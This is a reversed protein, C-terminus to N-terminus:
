KKINELGSKKKAIIPLITVNLEKALKDYDTKYEKLMLWILWILYFVIPKNYKM